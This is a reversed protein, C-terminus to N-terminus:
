KINNAAHAKILNITEAGITEFDRFSKKWGHEDVFNKIARKKPEEFNEWLEHVARVFAFGDNAVLKENAKLYLDGLSINPNVEKSLHVEGQSLQM